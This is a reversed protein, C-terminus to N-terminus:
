TGTRREPEDGGYEPSVLRVKRVADYIRRPGVLIPGKRSALWCRGLSAVCPVAPPRVMGDQGNISEPLAEVRASTSTSSSSPLRGGPSAGVPIPHDDAAVALVILWIGRTCTKYLGDSIGAFMAFEANTTEAVQLLPKAHCPVDASALPLFRMRVANPRSPPGHIIVRPLAQRNDHVSSEATQPYPANQLAHDARAAPGFTNDDIITRLESSPAAAPAMSARIASTISPCM